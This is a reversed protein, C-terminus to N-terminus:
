FDLGFSISYTNHWASSKPAFLYAFDLRLHLIRLGAGVSAYSPCPTRREGYHYGARFQVLQMLNYEAGVSVQWGRAASPSCFYGVDAGVTVEHADSLYTDFAAGAAVNVPLLRDSKRFSGGLNAVRAGARLASFEGVDNLPKMWGVSLDVALADGSGEPRRFHSYRTVAGVAWCDGIRRSYGLDVAMDSNGRERLFQRWGLQTLNFNDFRWYGTVAYYDSGGQGFYSSSVQSPMLSFSAMSPNNYIAHSGALATMAVGGMGLTKADPSSLWAVEQARGSALGLLLFPIFLLRKM